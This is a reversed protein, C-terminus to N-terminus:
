TMSGFLKEVDSHFNKRAVPNVVRWIAELGRLSTVHQPLPPLGPRLVASPNVTAVLEIMDTLGNPM